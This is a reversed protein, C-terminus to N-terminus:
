YIIKPVSVFPSVGSSLCSGTVVSSTRRRRTIGTTKFSESVDLKLPCETHGKVQGTDSVISEM